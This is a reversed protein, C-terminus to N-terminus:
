VSARRAKKTGVWAGANQIRSPRDEGAKHVAVCKKVSKFSRGFVEGDWYSFRFKGSPLKRLYPGQHKKDSAPKITGPIPKTMKITKM